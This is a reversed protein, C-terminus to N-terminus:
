VDNGELASAWLLLDENFIYHANENSGGHADVRSRFAASLRETANLRQAIEEVTM